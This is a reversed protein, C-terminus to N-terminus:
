KLAIHIDTKRWAVCFFGLFICFFFGLFSLVIVLVVMLNVDSSNSINSLHRLFNATKENHFSMLRQPYPSFTSQNSMSHKGFSWVNWPNCESPPPSVRVLHISAHSRNPDLDRRAVTEQHITCATKGARHKWWWMNGQGSAWLFPTTWEQISIELAM